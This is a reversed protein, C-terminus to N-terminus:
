GEKMQKFNILTDYEKKRWFSLYFKEFGLRCGYTESEGKELFGPHFAMEIDRGQKQAKKQYLPLIKKIRDEVLNGSFVIGLFLTSPIKSAKLKRKNFLNLFKLLWQKILGSPKYKFYLSPTLIFPALPEAPIRINEVKLGEDEIVRLLTKFILPIMHTHQHSDIFIPRENGITNKWFVVQKKIESYLQKELEKRKGFISNFFLGIFSHKFSGDKSVLLGIEERKSLPHGEVLNLHLSLRVNKDFLREKLESIDGNPLVSIQNLVGNELCNEIRSNSIKSIGYDDACFYIM